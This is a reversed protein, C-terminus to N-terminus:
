GSARESGDPGGPPEERRWRLQYITIKLYAASTPDDESGNRQPTSEEVHGSGPPISDDQGPFIVEGEGLTTHAVTIQLHASSTPEAPSRPDLAPSLTEDM